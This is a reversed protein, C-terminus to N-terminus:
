KKKKSTKVDYEIENKDLWEMFANALKFIDNGNKLTINVSKDEWSFGMNFPQPTSNIKHNFISNTYIYSPNSPATTTTVTGDPNNRVTVTSNITSTLTIKKAM